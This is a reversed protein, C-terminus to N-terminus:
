LLWLVVVANHVFTTELQESKSAQVAYDFQYSCWVDFAVKFRSQEIGLSEETNIVKFRQKGQKNEERASKSPSTIALFSQFTRM